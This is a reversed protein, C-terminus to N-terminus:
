LGTEAATVPKSYVISMSPSGELCILAHMSVENKSAADDWIRYIRRCNNRWDDTQHRPVRYQSSLIQTLKDTDEPKKPLLAVRFLGESGFYFFATFESGSARYNAKRTPAGFGRYTNDEAEKATTEEVFRNAAELAVESMGWRTYQWDAAAPLSSAALSAVIAAVHTYGQM